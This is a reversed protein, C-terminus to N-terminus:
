LYPIPNHYSNFKSMVTEFGVLASKHVDKYKIYGDKRATPVVDLAAKDNNLFDCAYTINLYRHSGHDKLISEM